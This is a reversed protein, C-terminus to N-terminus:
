WKRRLVRERLMGNETYTSSRRRPPLDMEDLTLGSTDTSHCIESEGCDDYKCQGPVHKEHKCDPCEM